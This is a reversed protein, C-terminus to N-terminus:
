KTSVSVKVTRTVSIGEPNTVTFTFQDSHLGNHPIYLITGNRQITVSGQTGQTVSSITLIDRDDRDVEPLIRIEQFHASARVTVNPVDQIIVLDITHIVDQKTTVGANADAALELLSHNAKERLNHHDCFSKRKQLSRVVAETDESWDTDSWRKLSRM